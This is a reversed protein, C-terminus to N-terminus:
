LHPRYNKLEDKGLLIDLGASLAIGTRGGNRVLAQM